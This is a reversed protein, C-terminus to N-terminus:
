SVLIIEHPVSAEILVAYGEVPQARYDVITDYIWVVTVVPIHGSQSVSAVAARDMDSVVSKSMCASCISRCFKSHDNDFVLIVHGEAIPARCAELVFPLDVIEAGCSLLLECVSERNM